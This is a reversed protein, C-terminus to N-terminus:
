RGLSGQGLFLPQRIERQRKRLCAGHLRHHRRAPGDLHAERSSPWLHRGPWRVCDHPQTALSSGANAVLTVVTIAIYSRLFMNEFLGQPKPPFSFVPPSSLCSPPFFFPFLPFFVSLFSAIRSLHPALFAQPLPRSGELSCGNRRSIDTFYDYVCIVHFM